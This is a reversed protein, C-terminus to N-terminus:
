KVGIEKLIHNAGGIKETIFLVYRIDVSIARTYQPEFLFDCIMSEWNGDFLIGVLKGEANMVPSGSNGGTSDVTSIFAVPIDGGLATVGYGGLDGSSYTKKLMEPTDFPDEGTDKEIVGSLTTFPDYYVADRPKYGKVYGYAFRVTFNADPYLNGKKWTNLLNMLLPEIENLTGALKRDYDLSWEYDKELGMALSIFPDNLAILEEKEKGFLSLAYDIDKLKSKECAEDAYRKIAKNLDEAEKGKFLKDIADLKFEEPLSVADKLALELFEKQAPLYLSYKAMAIGRKLDPVDRELYGEERELDPKNKEVSYKYLVRAISLLSSSLGLRRLVFRKMAVRDVTKYLDDYTKFVKDYEKKLEGNAEAFEALAGETKRKQAVLNVKTLGELNGKFNKLANNFGNDLGALKVKAERSESSHKNIIALMDELANIFWPYFLRQYYDISYSTRYRRTSAPYGLVFVFDDEKLDTAVKLYNKPKFPINDKSYEAPTGDKAVYARLFSFDGTHRPWMWNDIDGGYNGISRQPVYVIRIDKIVFYKFLYYNMGGFTSAVECEINEEKKEEEAVIEKKVSEILKARELPDEVDKIASHFRDTVDVYDITIKAKYGPAPIEEDATNALFGKEILNEVKTASRQIATFAVHHNTLILGMPSVFEGSGGGVQCIADNISPSGPKFIESPDIKLGKSKLDLKKIDKLMWMGEEASVAFCLFLSISIVFILIKKKM